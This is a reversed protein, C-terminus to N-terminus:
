GRGRANRSQESPLPLARIADGISRKPKPKPRTRTPAAKKPLGVKSIREVEDRPIKPRTGSVTVTRVDGAAVSAALEKRDIGILRAAASISLTAKSHSSLLRNQARLEDRIEALMALVKSSM